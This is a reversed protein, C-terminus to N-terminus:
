RFFSFALWLPLWESERVSVFIADRAEAFPTPQRLSRMNNCDSSSGLVLGLLTQEMLSLHQAYFAVQPGKQAKPVTFWLPTWLAVLRQSVCVNRSSLVPVLIATHPPSRRGFLQAFELKSLWCFGGQGARSAWGHSSPGSVWRGWRGKKM